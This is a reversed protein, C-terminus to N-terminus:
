QEQAKGAESFKIKQLGVGMVQLGAGSRGKDHATRPPVRARSQARLM